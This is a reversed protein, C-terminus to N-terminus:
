GMFGLDTTSFSALNSFVSDLDTAAVGFWRAL